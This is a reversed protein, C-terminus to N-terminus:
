AAAATEVGRARGAARGRGSSTVVVYSFERENGDANTYRHTEWHGQVEVRQGKRATRIRSEHPHDDLQWARIPYWRTSRNRGRGEHVALSLKAWERPATTGGRIIEGDTIPDWSTRQWEREPTVTIEGAPWNAM